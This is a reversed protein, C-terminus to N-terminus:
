WSKPKRGAEHAAIAAKLADYEECGFFCASDLVKLREKAKALKGTQLYLEGIYENAGRHNPSIALAQKYAVLAEDFRKLKRYSFGLYNWAHPNTPETKIFKQLLPLAAAFKKEGIAEVARDYDSPPRDPESIDPGGAAWATSAMALMLLAVLSTKIWM